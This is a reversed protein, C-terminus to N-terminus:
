NSVTITFPYTISISHNTDTITLSGSSSSYFPSSNPLSIKFNFPSGTVAFVRAVRPGKGDGYDVFANFFPNEIPYYFIL